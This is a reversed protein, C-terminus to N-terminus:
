YRQRRSEADGWPTKENEAYENKRDNEKKSKEMIEENVKEKAAEETLHKEGIIYNYIKIAEKKNYGEEIFRDITKRPSLDQVHINDDALPTNEVAEYRDSVDEPRVKNTRTDSLKDIVKSNYERGRGEIGYGTWKGNTGLRIEEFELYGQEINCAIRVDRANRNTNALGQTTMVQYPKEKKVEEGNQGLSVVNEQLKTTSENFFKSPQTQGNEDIYEAKIKGDNDRYFYLDKESKLQPYNKLLKSDKRIIFINKTAIHKKQAIREIEKQTNDYRRSLTKNKEEKLKLYKSYNGSYITLRKNELEYTETTVKDLFYRDHSIVIFSGKYNILFEELWEIADIDLNNTPEDLLLLNSKSLLMKALMLKTKQGGSLKSVELTFEKEKFGLGLLTSRTMSKYTYGGLSRYEEDIAHQKLVLKDIDSRNNEIDSQIQLMEDEIQLLREHVSLAEDYLNINPKTCVFQEVYGINVNKAKYVEGSDYRMQDQIIKFLTTKGTGNVGVLGIKHGDEVTFSVGDFLLNAGFSKSINSLSLLAM